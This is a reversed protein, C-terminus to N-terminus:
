ATVEGRQPSLRYYVSLNDVSFPKDAANIRVRFRVQSAMFSINLRKTLSAVQGSEQTLDVDV